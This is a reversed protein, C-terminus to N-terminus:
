GQKYLFGMLQAQYYSNLAEKKPLVIPVITSGGSMNSQPSGQGGIPIPLISSKAGSPIEYEAQQM